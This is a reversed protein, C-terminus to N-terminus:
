AQLATSIPQSHINVAMLADGFSCIQSKGVNWIITPSNTVWATQTHKCASALALVHPFDDCTEFIRTLMEVPISLIPSKMKQLHTRLAEFLNSSIPLPPSPLLPTNISSTCPGLSPETPYILYLLPERLRFGEDFCM